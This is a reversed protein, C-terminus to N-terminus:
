GWRWFQWWRRHPSTGSTPRPEKSFRPLRVTPLKGEDVAREGHGLTVRLTRYYSAIPKYPETLAKWVADPPSGHVGNVVLSVSAAEEDLEKLEWAGGLNRIIVEGVYGGLMKCYTWLEEQDQASMTDPVLLGSSTLSGLIRDIEEVSQESFDLVLGHARKAYAVAGEAYERMVDAVTPKAM